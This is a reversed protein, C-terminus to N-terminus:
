FHQNRGFGIAGASLLGPISQERHGWWLRTDTWTIFEIFYCIGLPELWNKGWNWPKPWLFLLFNLNDRIIIKNNERKSSIIELFVRYKLRLYCSVWQKLKEKLREKPLAKRFKWKQLIWIISRFGTINFLSTLFEWWHCYSCYYGPIKCHTKRNWYLTSWSIFEKWLGPLCFM